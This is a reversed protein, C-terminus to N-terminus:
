LNDKQVRVRVGHGQRSFVCFCVPDQVRNKEFPEELIIGVLGVHHFHVRESARRREDFFGKFDCVVRSDDRDGGGVQGGQATPVIFRRGSTVVTRRQVHIKGVLQSQADDQSSDRANSFFLSFVDRRKKGPVLVM